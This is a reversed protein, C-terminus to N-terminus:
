QLASKSAQNNEITYIKCFEYARGTHESIKEFKLSSAIRVFVKDTQGNM